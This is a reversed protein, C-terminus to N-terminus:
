HKWGKTLDRKDTLASCYNQYKDWEGGCHYVVRVSQPTHEPIEKVIGNEWQDKPYHPPQYCVEDGVEFIVEEPKSDEIINDEIRCGAYREHVYRTSKFDVDRMDKGVMYGLLCHAETGRENHCRYDENRYFPCTGCTKPIEKIELAVRM